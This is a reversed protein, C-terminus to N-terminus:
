ANGGTVITPGDRVHGAFSTSITANESNAALLVTPLLQGLTGLSPLDVARIKALQLTDLLTEELLEYSWNKESVPPVAILVCQPAQVGPADYQFAIGTDEVANPIIEPWSDILAGCWPGGAPPLDGLLALSVLGARPRIGGDFDLGVWRSASGDLPLQVIRPRLWPRGLARAYLQLQHLIDLPERV